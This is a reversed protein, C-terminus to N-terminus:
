LLEAKVEDVVLLVSEQHMWRRAKEAISRMKDVGVRKFDLASFSVSKETVTTGDAHRYGGLHETRTFGGYRRTIFIGLLELCFPV